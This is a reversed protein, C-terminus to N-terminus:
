AVPGDIQPRVIKWHELVAVQNDCGYSDVFEIGTYACLNRFHKQENSPRGPTCKLEFFTIRVANGIVLLDLLGKAAENLIAGIVVICHFRRRM